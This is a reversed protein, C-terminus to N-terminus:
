WGRATTRPNLSHCLTLLLDSFAPRELHTCGRFLRYHGLGTPYTCPPQSILCPWRSPPPASPFTRQSLKFFSSSSSSRAQVRRSSTIICYVVREPLAHRKKRILFMIKRKQRQKQWRSVAFCGWERFENPRPDRVGFFPSRFATLRFVRM